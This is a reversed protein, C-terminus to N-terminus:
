GKLVFHVAKKSDGSVVANNESERKITSATVPVKEKVEKKEETQDVLAINNERVKSGSVFYIIGLTLLLVAVAAASKWYIVIRKRRNADLMRQNIDSWIYDPPKKEFGRLKDNVIKDVSHKLM